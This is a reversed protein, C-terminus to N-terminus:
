DEVYVREQQVTQNGAPDVAKVVVSNWGVRDFTVLKRFTGNSEVDVEQDNIFVTAGPEVQGEFQFNAGGLSFPRKVRLTPPTKDVTATSVGTSLGSVRFRRFPSFPGIRGAADVSAVRWFFPGDATVRATARTGSRRANIENRSFLRSRSVQLQYATAEPLSAWQFEVRRDATAQFVQNDGPTLLAPPMTAKEIQSLQGERSATVQQGAALTAAPKGETGGVASTGRVNVVQTAKTTPEVGVHATSLSNVVVQTGPTRVTSSDDTTAIEVTGIQMQVSNQKKSTGPALVAYIELLANPGVTYLSGNSFILEASAGGGTKVWDGNFLPGRPDAKKWDSSGSRQYQVEGEVTLFQADSDREGPIRALAATIITQSETAAAEAEPYSKNSFHSRAETLKLNGRDFEGRFSSLDKSAALQNLAAEAAEIAREALHRPSNGRYDYYLYGGLLLLAVAVAIGIKKLTDISILYWDIDATTQRTAKAM